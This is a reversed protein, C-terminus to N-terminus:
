EPWGDSGILPVFRVGCIERRGIQEGRKEIAILSQTERGGEPFLIRGGDALQRIWAPPVEPAGAGCVIRDFPAESDWGLTGDGTRFTVNRINLETLLAAARESLEDIREVAYVWRSLRALLATQYGSGSGVDLVRHQASLDLEQLMLAVIYPQSITQGFGIPVPRDAYAEGIREPPVFRHRPIEQCAQLIEERHIGRQRLQKQVMHNRAALLKEEPRDM